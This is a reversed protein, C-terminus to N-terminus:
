HRSDRAKRYEHEQLDTNCLLLPNAAEDVNMGLTVERFAESVSLQSFCLVCNFM